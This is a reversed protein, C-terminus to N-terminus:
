QKKGEIIKELYLFNEVDAHTVERKCEESVIKERRESLLYKGFEITEKDREM